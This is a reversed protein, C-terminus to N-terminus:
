ARAGGFIAVAALGVITPLLLNDADKTPLAETVTAIAAIAASRPANGSVAYASCLVAIFCTLSGEVSKGGTFPIKISGIAKGVLSSLGDGFALAYIAISAAPEPYLVLALLAGIGLTVPGFVFHGADRRRAALATIKSVVAIEYGRIRMLESYSYVLVGSALLVVTFGFNWNALTPVLGILLHISKRVIETRLEASWPRSVSISGATRIVDSM